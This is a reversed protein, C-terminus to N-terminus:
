NNTDSVQLPTQNYNSPDAETGEIDFSGIEFCAEAYVNHEIRVDITQLEPYTIYASPNEIFTDAGDIADDQNTYYFIVYELPSQGDLIPNTNQTLNYEVETMTENNCMHITPLYVCIM